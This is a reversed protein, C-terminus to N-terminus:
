KTKTAANLLEGGATTAAALKGLLNAIAESAARADKVSKLAAKAADFATEVAAGSSSLQAAVAAFYNARAVAINAQVATVDAATQAAALDHPENQSADMYNQQIVKLRESASSM